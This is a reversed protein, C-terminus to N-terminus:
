NQIVSFIPDWMDPYNGTFIYLITTRKDKMSIESKVHGRHSHVLSILRLRKIESWSNMTRDVMNPNTCNLQYHYNLKSVPGM